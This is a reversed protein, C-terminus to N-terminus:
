NTERVAAAVEAVVALIDDVAAANLSTGHRVPQRVARRAAAAFEREGIRSKLVVLRAILDGGQLKTGPDLGGAEIERVAQKSTYALASMISCIWDEASELPGDFPQAAIESTCPLRVAAGNAM